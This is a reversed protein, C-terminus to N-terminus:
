TKTQRSHIVVTLNVKLISISDSLRQHAPKTKLNYQKRSSDRNIEVVKNQM